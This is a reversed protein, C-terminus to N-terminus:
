PMRGCKEVSFNFGYPELTNDAIFPGQAFSRTRTRFGADFKGRTLNVLRAMIPHDALDANSSYMDLHSEHGKYEAKHDIDYLKHISEFHGFDTADSTMAIISVPVQNIDHACFKEEELAYSKLDWPKSDGVWVALFDNIIKHELALKEGQAHLTVTLGNDHAIHIDEGMLRQVTAKNEFENKHCVPIWTDRFPLRNFDM